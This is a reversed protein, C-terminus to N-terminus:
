RTKEKPHAAYYADVSSQKLQGVTSQDLGSRIAWDRIKTRKKRDLGIRGSAVGAARAKQAAALRASPEVKQEAGDQAVVPVTGATRSNRRPKKEVPVLRGATLYPVLVAAFEEAHEATLDIEYNVGDFGFLVTKDALKEPDLDDRIRIIVERM